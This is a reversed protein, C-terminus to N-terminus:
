VGYPTNFEGFNEPCEWYWVGRYSTNVCKCGSSMPTIMGHGALDIM